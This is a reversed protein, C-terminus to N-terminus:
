LIKKMTVGDKYFGCNKYFQVNYENCSLSIKYCNNEVAHKVLFNIIHKGLGKGRMKEDVVIDEIHAAKGGRIKSEYVISGYGIIEKNFFFSFGYVNEQNIFREWIEEKAEIKPMFNSIAQLMNVIAHFDKLEVAKNIIM